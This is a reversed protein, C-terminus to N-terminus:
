SRATRQFMAVAEYGIAWSLVSFFWKANAMSRRARGPDVRSKQRRALRANYRASTWREKLRPVRHM